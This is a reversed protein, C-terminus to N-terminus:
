CCYGDQVGPVGYLEYGTERDTCSIVVYCFPRLGGDIKKLDKKSLKRKQLNLNKM